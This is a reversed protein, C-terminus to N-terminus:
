RRRAAAATVKQDPSGQERPRRRVLIAAQPDLVPTVFLRAAHDPADNVGGAVTVPEAAVLLELPDAVLAQDVAADADQPGDTIADHGDPRRTERPIPRRDILRHRVTLRVRVQHSRAHSRHRSASIMTSCEGDCGSAM